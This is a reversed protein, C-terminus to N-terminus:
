GSWFTILNGEKNYIVIRNAKVADPTEALEKLAKDLNTKDIISSVTNMQIYIEKTAQSSFQKQEDLIVDKLNDRLKNYTTAERQFTAM